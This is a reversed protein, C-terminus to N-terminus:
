RPALVVAARRQRTAETATTNRQPGRLAPEGLVLEGPLLHLEVGRRTNRRWVASVAHTLSGTNSALSQAVASQQQRWRPRVNNWPPEVSQAQSCARAVM